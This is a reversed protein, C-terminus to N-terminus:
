LGLSDFFVLKSIGRFHTKTLLSQGSESLAEIFPFVAIMRDNSGPSVVSFPHERSLNVYHMILSAQCFFAMQKFHGNRHHM